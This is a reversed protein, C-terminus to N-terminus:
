NRFWLLYASWDLVCCAIMVVRECGLGLLDMPDAEAGQTGSVLFRLEDISNYCAAVLVDDDCAHWFVRGTSGLFSARSQYVSQPHPPEVERDFLLSHKGAKLLRYVAQNTELTTCVDDLSAAGGVGSEIVFASDYLDPVPYGEPCSFPVTLYFSGSGFNLEAAVRESTTKTPGEWAAFRELVSRLYVEGGPFVMNRSPQESESFRLYNDM